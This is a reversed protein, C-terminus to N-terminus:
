YIYELKRLIHECKSSFDKIAYLHVINKYGAGCHFVILKEGIKSRIYIYKLLGSESAYESSQWVDLLYSKSSITM